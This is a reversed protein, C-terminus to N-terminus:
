TMQKSIRLQNVHLNLFIEKNKKRRLIYNAYLDLEKNM